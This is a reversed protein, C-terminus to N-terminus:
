RHTHKENSCGGTDVLTTCQSYTHTINEGLVEKLIRLRSDFVRLMPEQDEWQSLIKNDILTTFMQTETFSSLFPLYAEPQDSLFAAKDFNQMSERNNLWADMDQNPQIVFTEYSSFLHLFHNLFVERVTNNFKLDEIEKVSMSSPDRSGTERSDKSPMDSFEEISSWVGTKKALASIKAFAESQQLIEMKNSKITEEKNLGRRPSSLVKPNATVEIKSTDVKERHLRTRHVGCVNVLEQTLEQLHPFRPLDEPVEVTKEDMDVFCLNAQM